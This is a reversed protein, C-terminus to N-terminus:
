FTLGRKSTRLMLGLRIVYLPIVIVVSVFPRQMNRIPGAVVFKCVFVDICRFSAIELRSYVYVIKVGNIFAPPPWFPDIQLTSSAICSVSEDVRDHISLIIKVM